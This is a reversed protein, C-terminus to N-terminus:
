RDRSSTARSTDAVDAADPVCTERYSLQAQLWVGHGRSSSAVLLIATAGLSGGDTNPRFHM